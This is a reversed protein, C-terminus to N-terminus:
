TVEASRRAFRLARRLADLLADSLQGYSGVEVGQWHTEAAQALLAVLPDSALKAVVRAPLHLLSRRAGRVLRLRCVM